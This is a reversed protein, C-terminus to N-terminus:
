MKWFSGAKPIEIFPDVVRQLLLDRSASHLWQCFGVLSVRLCFSMVPFLSALFSKGFTLHIYNCSDLKQERVRGCSVGLVHRIKFLRHPSSRAASSPEPVATNEATSCSLYGGLGQLLLSTGKHPLLSNGYSAFLLIVSTPTVSVTCSCVGQRCSGWRTSFQTSLGHSSDGQKPLCWIQLNGSTIHSTTKASHLLQSM